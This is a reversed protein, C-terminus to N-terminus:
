LHQPPQHWHSPVALFVTNCLLGYLSQLFLSETGTNDCVRCWWYLWTLSGDSVEYVFSYQFEEKSRFYMYEIFIRTNSNTMILVYIYSRIQDLLHIMKLLMWKNTITFKVTLEASLYLCNDYFGLSFNQQSLILSNWKISNIHKIEQYQASFNLLDAERLFTIKWFSGTQENKKKKKAFCM